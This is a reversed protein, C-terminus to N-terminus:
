KSVVLATVQSALTTIALFSGSISHVFALATKNTGKTGTTTHLVLSCAIVSFSFTTLSSVKYRSCTETLQLPEFSPSSKMFEKGDSLLM